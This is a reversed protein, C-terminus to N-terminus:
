KKGGGEGEGHAAEPRTGGQTRRKTKTARKHPRALNMNEEEGPKQIIWGDICRDRRDM